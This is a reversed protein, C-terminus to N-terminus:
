SQWDISLPEDGAMRLLHDAVVTQLRQLQEQDASALQADVHGEAIRLNCNGLPLEIAGGQEDLQVPFKHRWHNCLRKILRQPNEAAIHAHSRYM